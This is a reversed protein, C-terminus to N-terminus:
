QHTLVTLCLNALLQTERKASFREPDPRSLRARLEPEDILRLVADTFEEGDRYLLGNSGAAVVEANGPIAHALIPRGLTAAEVLVNPLGESVSNNLVVDAQLMAAPMADTALNGVYHAWPRAAVAPFFRAAYIEDLIPGCFVVQFPRQKAVRDPEPM